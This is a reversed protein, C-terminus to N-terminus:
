WKWAIKKLLVYFTELSINKRGNAMDTGSFVSM